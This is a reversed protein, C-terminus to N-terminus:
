NLVREIMKKAAEMALLNYGEVVVNDDNYQFEKLLAADLESRWQQINQLTLATNLHPEHWKELVAHVITGMGASDVQEELENIEGIGLVYRYYYDLPCSLYRNIASPSLGNKFQGM